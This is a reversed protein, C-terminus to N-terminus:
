VIDELSRVIGENDIVDMLKIYTELV